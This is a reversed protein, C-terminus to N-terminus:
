ITELEWKFDYKLRRRLKRLANGHIKQAKYKTWCMGQSLAYLTNDDYSVYMLAKLEDVSLKLLCDMLAKREQKEVLYDLPNVVNHLGNAFEVNSWYLDDVSTHRM